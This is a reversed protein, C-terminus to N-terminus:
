LVSHPTLERGNIAIRSPMGPSRCLPHLTISYTKGDRKETLRVPKESRVIKDFHQKRTKVLHDPMCSFVCCGLADKVTTGLRMAAVENMALVTADTDLLIMSDGSSDLLMRAADLSEHLANEINIQQSIDRAVSIGGIVDGDHLCPMGSVEVFLPEGDKRTVRYISAPVHKGSLIHLANDIADGIDAPDLIHLDQISRGLLDDPTYGTVQEVNPSVSIIRFSRDYLFLVERTLSFHFHYKEERERLLGLRHKLELIEAELRAIVSLAKRLEKKLTEPSEDLINM